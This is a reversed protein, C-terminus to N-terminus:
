KEPANVGSVGGAAAFGLCLMLKVLLLVGQAMGTILGILILPVVYMVGCIAGTKLGDKRRTRGAARGCFFSGAAAAALVMWFRHLLMLIWKKMDMGADAYRIGSM